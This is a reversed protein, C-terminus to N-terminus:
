STASAGNAPPGQNALPQKAVGRWLLGSWLPDFGLDVEPLVGDDLHAGMEGGITENAEGDDLHARALPPTAASAPGEANHRHLHIIGQSQNCISQM